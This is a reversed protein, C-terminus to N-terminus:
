SYGKYNKDRELLNKLVAIIINGIDQDEPYCENEHELFIEIKDILRQQDRNGVNSFLVDIIVDPNTKYIAHFFYIISHVIEYNPYEYIRIENLLKDLIKRIFSLALHQYYENNGILCALIPRKILQLPEYRYCEDDYAGSYIWDFKEYSNLYEMMEVNSIYNSVIKMTIELHLCNGDDGYYLNVNNFNIQYLARIIFPKIREIQESKFLKLKELSILNWGGKIDVLEHKLSDINIEQDELEERNEDWIMEIWEKLEISPQLEREERLKEMEKAFLMEKSLVLEKSSKITKFQEVNRKQIREIGKYAKERLTEHKYQKKLRLLKDYSTLAEDLQGIREFSDGIYYLAEIFRPNLELAVNFSEIAKIFKGNAHYVKGKFYWARVNNRDYTLAKEFFELSKMYQTRKYAMVGKNYLSKSDEPNM